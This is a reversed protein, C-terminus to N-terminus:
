PERPDPAVPLWPYRAAHEYKSRMTAHYAARPRAMSLRKRYYDVIRRDYDVVSLKATRERGTLESALREDEDALRSYDAIGSEAHQVGIMALDYKLGYLQRRYRYQEAAAEIRMTWVLAGFGVAVVAVAVMLWRLTFRPRPM